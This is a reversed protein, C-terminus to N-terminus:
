KNIKIYPAIGDTVFTEIGNPTSFILLADLDPM